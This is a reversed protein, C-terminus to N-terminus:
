KRKGKVQELAARLREWQDRSALFIAVAAGAYIKAITTGLSFEISGFAIFVFLASDIAAGVIQSLLVALARGAARFKAYVLLDAMESLTFAIASAIAIAAPSVALSLAGGFIVAVLAWRWGAAEPLWDRLALALGILLVGSPAMLGFGVPILCPGDPICETGVNGILWNAAPITAAFAFFLLLKHLM